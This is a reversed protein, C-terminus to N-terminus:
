SGIAGMPVDLRNLAPSPDGAQAAWLSGGAAFAPAAGSYTWITGTPQWTAPDIRQMTTLLNSNTLAPTSPDAAGVTLTWFTGDFIEARTGTPMIPSRSDIGSPTIRDFHFDTGDGGNMATWAVAWCENGVQQIPGIMGPETFSALVNGNAPDMRTVTASPNFVNSDVGWASGCADDAGALAALTSSIQGKSDGTVPDLEFFHGSLDAVVVFGHELGALTRDVLDRTAKGSVLDIRFVHSFDTCPLACASGNDVQIWLAGGAVAFGREVNSIPTTYTKVVKNTTLNVREVIQAGSFDSLACEIFLDGGSIVPINASTIGTIDCNSVSAVASAARRAFPNITASPSASPASAIGSASASASPSASATAAVSASASPSSSGSAAPQNSRSALGFVFVIAVVLTAGALLGAPLATRTIRPKPASFPRRASRAVSAWERLVEDARSRDM